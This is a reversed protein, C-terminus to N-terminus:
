KARYVWNQAGKSTKAQHPYYKKKSNAEAKLGNGLEIFIHNSGTKSKTRRIDGEQVAGKVLTFNKKLYADIKKWADATKGSYDMKPFGCKYLVVGVFRHCYFDNGKGYVEKAATKYAAKESTKTGCFAIAQRAIQSGKSISPYTAKSNKNLYTQLAKMSATGFIGDATVGLKKQLAKSTNPGWCGDPGSLGLWKQLYLVTPSSNGYEYAKLSPVYKQLDKRITIGGTKSVGLFEQLRTVTAAGGVGDVTLKGDTTAPKSVTKTEPLASWIKPILGKMTTEYCYWGDHKRGGSDKTYFYHKNGSVKYDVFAVYHGGATWRVGGKTGARFLIVGLCPQGKKKRANLTTFIDQMTAHDIVKNGYYQLTLKIGNWTTGNGKTAFGQGVMYPRLDKPTWNKYKDQEIIVHLCACCGCGNGSFSYSSTPYPLKGWRSDYQRYINKNM